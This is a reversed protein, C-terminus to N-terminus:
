YPLPIKAPGEILVNSGKLSPAFRRNTQLDNNEEHPITERSKAAPINENDKKRKSDGSAPRAIIKKKASDVPSGTVAAPKAPEKIRLDNPSTEAAGGRLRVAPSRKKDAQDKGASKSVIIAPKANKRSNIVLRMVTSGESSSPRVSGRVDSSLSRLAVRDYQRPAAASPRATAGTRHRADHSWPQDGQGSRYSRYRGDRAYTAKTFHNYRDVNIHVDRSHWNCDWAGWFAGVFVGSIFSIGSYTRPYFYYPPYAPYWWAGYIIAPDYRPVYVIEASAPEIIIMETQPEVRIVQKETTDLNGQARAKQRLRQVADMCDSQQALFADGLKGTWELQEDMMALVDPFELMAKVSPEWDKDKAAELLAEGKLGQNEKVFREAAVVELPYTAATLAQALLADPYLAIPALLQELEEPKFYNESSQAQALPVALLFVLACVATRKFLKIGKM